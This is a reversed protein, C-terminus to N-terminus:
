KSTCSDFIRSFSRLLSWDGTVTVKGDMYADFPSINGSLFGRLSDETLTLQVDSHTSIDPNESVSINGQEIAILVKRASRGLIDLMFLANMDDIMQEKLAINVVKRITEVIDEGESAFQTGVETNETNSAQGASDPIFPFAAAAQNESPQGIAAKFASMLTGIVDVSDPSKLVKVSHLYVSVVELGWHIASRNLEDKISCNILDPKVQLDEQDKQSVFNRLCFQALDRLTDDQHQLKVVYSLVDAVRYEIDTQAEVIGGDATRLQSTEVTFQQTRLNVRTWKDVFPLVFAFGPGKIPQLKGLRMLVLRELSHIRKVCIWCSLPFSAVVIVYLLFTIFNRLAILPLSEKSVNEVEGDTPITIAHYSFASKYKEKRFPKLHIDAPGYQFASKYDFVSNFNNETVMTLFGYQTLSKKKM